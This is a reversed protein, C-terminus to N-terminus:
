VMKCICLQNAKGETTIVINMERYPIISPTNTELKASLVDKAAILKIRGNTDATLANPYISPVPPAANIAFVSPSCCRSFASWSNERSIRNVGLYDGFTTGCQPVM